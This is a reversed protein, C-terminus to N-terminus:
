CYPRCARTRRSVVPALSHALSHSRRFALTSVRPAIFWLTFTGRHSHPPSLSFSRSFLSGISSRDKQPLTTRDERRVVIEIACGRPAPGPRDRTAPYQRSADVTRDAIEVLRFYATTWPAPRPEAQASRREGRENRRVGRDTRLSSGQGRTDRYREGAVGDRGRGWRGMEFHNCGYM